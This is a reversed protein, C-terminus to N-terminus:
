RGAFGMRELLCMWRRERDEAQIEREMKELETAPAAKELEKREKEGYFPIYYAEMEPVFGPAWSELARVLPGGLTVVNASICQLCFANLEPPLKAVGEVKSAYVPFLNCPCMSSTPLYLKEFHARVATPRAALRQFFGHTPAAATSARTCPRKNATPKTATKAPKIPGAAVPDNVKVKAAVDSDASPAPVVSSSCASPITTPARQVFDSSGDEGDDNVLPAFPNPTAM